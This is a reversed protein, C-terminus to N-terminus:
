QRVMILAYRNMSIIVMLTTTFWITSNQNQASVIVSSCLFFMVGLKRLAREKLKEIKLKFM